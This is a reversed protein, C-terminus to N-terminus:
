NDPRFAEVAAEPRVAVRVRQRDPDAPPQGCDHCRGGEVIPRGTLEENPTSDALATQSPRVNDDDTATASTRMYSYLQRMKPHSAEGEDVIVHDFSGVQGAQDAPRGGIDADRLDISNTPM